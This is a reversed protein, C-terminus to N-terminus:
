KGLNITQLAMQKATTLVQINAEYSRSASILNTTETMANIGTSYVYGDKDALPNDPRYEKQPPTNRAVIDAIQVGGTAHGTEQDLITAFVPEKARYVQNPDSALVDANSLNSATVNMRVSQASLASGAIDFISGMSM